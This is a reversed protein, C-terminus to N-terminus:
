NYQKQLIRQLMWYDPTLAASALVAALSLSLSLSLSLAAAIWIFRICTPREIKLYEISFIITLWVFWKSVWQFSINPSNFYPFYWLRSCSVYTYHFALKERLFIIWLETLLRKHFNGFIRSSIILKICLDTPIVRKISKYHFYQFCGNCKPLVYCTLISQTDFIDSCLSLLWKIDLKWIPKVSNHIIQICNHLYEIATCLYLKMSNRFSSRPTCWAVKQSQFVSVCHGSNLYRWCTLM